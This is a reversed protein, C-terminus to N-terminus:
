PRLEVSPGVVHWRDPAVGFDPKPWYTGQAPVFAALVALPM